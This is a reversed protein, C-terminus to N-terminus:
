DDRLGGRRGVDLDGVWVVHPRQTDIPLHPCVHRDIYQALVRLDQTEEITTVPWRALWWRPAHDRKLCQWANAPVQVNVYQDEYREKRLHDKKLVFGAVELVMGEMERRVLGELSHALGAAEHTILRRVAVMERQMVVEATAVANAKTM